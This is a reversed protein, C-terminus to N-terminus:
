QDRDVPTLNDQQPQPTARPPPNTFTLLPGQAVANNAGGPLFAQVVEHQRVFDRVPRTPNLFHNVVLENGAASIFGNPALRFLTNDLFESRTTGARRLFGTVNDLRTDQVLKKLEALLRRMHYSDIFNGYSFNAADFIEDPLDLFVGDSVEDLQDFQVSESGTQLGPEEDAPRAFNVELLRLAVQLHTFGESRQRGLIENGYSEIITQSLYNYEHVEKSVRRGDGSRRPRAFLGEQVFESFGNILREFFTDSVGATREAQDRVASVANDRATRLFEDFANRTAKDANIASAIVQALGAGQDSRVQLGARLDNERDPAAAIARDIDVNTGIMLRNLHQQPNDIIEQITPTPQLPRGLFYNVTDNAGNSLRFALAHSAPVNNEIDLFYADRRGEFIDIFLSAGIAHLLSSQKLRDTNQNAIIPIAVM